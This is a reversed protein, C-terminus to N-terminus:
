KFLKVLNPHNKQWRWGDRCMDEISRSPKWNMKKLMLSTDAYSIAIDGTRREAFEYNIKIKNVREFTNILELVSNSKGTGVNLSINIKKREFIYYIMIKHIEALDVVHIYDRYCTGDPTPWDNGFVYLKERLGAAVQCIYPFINEPKGKPNEGILGSPHAGVPNFYRLSAVRWQNCDSDFINKLFYEVSAKTYGYTNFPKINSSENFPIEKTDGYITASSSFLLTRCKNEEMVKFLNISGYVNVDWYLVPNHNSEGVSKLGAFHIVADIEEKKKLAENFVSRLFAADRIDGEFFNIKNDNLKNSLQLIKKIGNFVKKNSNALSDIIYLNFGEELFLLCTHSGIFGAGGTILINKM